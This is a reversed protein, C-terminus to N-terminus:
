SEFSLDCLWDPGDNHQYPEITDTVSVRADGRNDRVKFDLTLDIWPEELLETSANERIEVIVNLPGSYTPPIRTGDPLESTRISTRIEIDESPITSSETALSKVGVTSIQSARTGSNDIILAHEFEYTAWAAQNKLRCRSREVASSEISIRGRDYQHENMYYEVAVFSVIVVSTLELIWAVIQIM